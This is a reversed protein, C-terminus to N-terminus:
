FMFSLCTAALLLLTLDEALRLHAIRLRVLLLVLLARRLLSLLIISRRLLRALVLGGRFNEGSAEGAPDRKAASFHGL